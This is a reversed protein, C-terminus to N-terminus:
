EKEELADQAAKLVLGVEFDFEGLFRPGSATFQDRFRRCAAVLDEFLETHPRKHAPDPEAPQQRKILVTEPIGCNIEGEDTIFDVWITGTEAPNSMAVAEGLRVGSEKDFVDWGTLPIM